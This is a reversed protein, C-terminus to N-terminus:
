GIFAECLKNLPIYNIMTSNENQVLWAFTHTTMQTLAINYETQYETQVAVKQTQFRLVFFGIILFLLILTTLGFLIAYKKYINKSTSLNNMKVQIASLNELSM